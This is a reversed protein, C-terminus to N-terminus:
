EQPVITVGIYGTESSHTNGPAITFKIEGQNSSSGKNAAAPAEAPQVLAILSLFSFMVLIVSLVFVFNKFDM